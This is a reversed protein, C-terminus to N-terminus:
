GEQQLESLRRLVSRMQQPELECRDAVLAVVPGLVDLVARGRARMPDDQVAEEIEHVLIEAAANIKDQPLLDKITLVMSAAPTLEIGKLVLGKHKLITKGIGKWSPM